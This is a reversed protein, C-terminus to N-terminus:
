VSRTVAFAYCSKRNHDYDEIPVKYLAFGPEVTHTPPVSSASEAGEIDLAPGFAPAGIRRARFFIQDFFRFWNSMHDM